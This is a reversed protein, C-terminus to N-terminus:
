GGDRGLSCLATLVSSCLWLCRVLALSLDASHGSAVQPPLPPHQGPADPRVSPLQSSLLNPSALM